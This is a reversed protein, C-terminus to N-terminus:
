VSGGGGSNGSWGGGWNNPEEYAYGDGNIGTKGWVNYGPGNAPTNDKGKSDSVDDKESKPQCRKAKRDWKYGRPCRPVDSEVQYEPVVGETTKLYETFNLAM